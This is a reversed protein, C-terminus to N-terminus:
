DELWPVVDVLRTTGTDLDVFEIPAPSSSPTLRAHINVPVLILTSDMICADRVVGSREVLCTGDNAHVRVVSRSVGQWTRVNILVLHDDDADVPTGWAPTVHFGRDGVFKWVSTQDAAIAIDDFVHLRPRLWGAPSFTTRTQHWPGGWSWRANPLADHDWRFSGFEVVSAPEHRHRRTADTPRMPDLLFAGDDTGYRLDPGEFWRFTGQVLHRNTPDDLPVIEFES